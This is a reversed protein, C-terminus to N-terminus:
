SDNKPVFLNESQLKSNKYYALSAIIFILIITYYVFDPVPLPDGSAYSHLGSLYYNVGFYTMIVTSFALLSSLNFVFLGKLSPIMRMHTVFAYILITVLTWAEKPDWGWYRGWSENAWVGGLFTGITLLYLGAILSMEIINSLERVNIDIRAFSIKTRLAMLILNLFALLACLGFFGYSATITAVHLVLWYSRLVPVLNTIQPDMWSLHATHLVLFALVASAGLTVPSKGSFIIGALVTAWAVYILSEYGNSWPAHGSVYWRLVIGSTHLAFVIIVLYFGIILTKDPKFKSNFVSVFQLILIVFGIIGYFSSIRNFIDTKNFFIEMSTKTSSPLVERAHLVQYNKIDKLIGDPINWDGSNLSLGAQTIYNNLIQQIFMSDGRSLDSPINSSSHWAGSIDGPIPFIRFLDGTFVLYCINIKEDLKIIENDFKSRSAPSKMYAIEVYESIIYINDKFFESFPYFKGKSGLLEQIQKFSVKIIKENQWYDPDIYMGLIVQTSSQGKYSTNRSIKRLIESSLTNMPEIRGAPDQVFIRGFMNAHAPDIAPIKADRDIQQANSYLNIFFLLFVLTGLKKVQVISKNAVALKRFRSNPNFISFFMGITMILYGTYTIATGVPDRNVSLVTGKEDPYYSSQYFRYGRYRLVNNMYISFPETKGKISDFVIVDSVYGSPSMSGPYREINFDELKIEFPLKIEAPSYSLTVPIENINISVPMGKRKERGWVIIEEREEGSNIVVRLADSSSSDSSGSLLTTGAEPYFGKLVLRIGSFDYIQMPEFIHLSDKQLEVMSNGSAMNIKNVTFPAKFFLKENIVILSIFKHNSNGTVNFSLSIDEIQRIEGDTIIINDSGMLGSYMLDALAKGPIDTRVTQVANPVFGVLSLSVEKDNFDIEKTFHKSKIKTLSTNFQEHIQSEENLGLKVFLYAENSQFYDTTEGERINMIGESGTYRTVVAGLLILIFSVHFLFMTFKKTRYTKNRVMLGTLNIVGLLLILEFWKSNYVVIRASSSGYDNEIFTAVAISLAMIVFIAAM